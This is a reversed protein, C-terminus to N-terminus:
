YPRSCPRTTRLVFHRTRRITLRYAGHESRGYIQRTRGDGEECERNCRSDPLGSALYMYPKPSGDRLLGGAGYPTGDLNATAECRADSACASLATAGGLSYGLMGARDTALRRYFRAGKEDDLKAMRDLEFSM